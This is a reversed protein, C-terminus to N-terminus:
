NKIKIIYLLIYNNLCNYLYLVLYNFREISNISCLEYLLLEQTELKLDIKGIYTAASLSHIM